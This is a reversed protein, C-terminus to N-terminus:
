QIVENIGIELAAAYDIHSGANIKKVVDKTEFYGISEIGVQILEKTAYATKPDGKVDSPVISFVRNLQYKISKSFGNNNIKSNIKDKIILPDDNSSGPYHNSSGPTVSQHGGKKLSDYNSSGEYRVKGNTGPKLLFIKRSNGKLETMLFFKDSLKKMANKISGKASKIAAKLKDTKKPADYDEQKIKGLWIALKANSPCILGDRGYCNSLRILIRMELGSLDHKCLLNQYEYKNFEETQMFFGKEM